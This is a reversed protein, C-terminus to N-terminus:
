WPLRRHLRLMSPRPTGPREDNQISAIADDITSRWNFSPRNRYWLRSSPRNTSIGFTSPRRNVLRARTADETGSRASNSRVTENMIDCRSNSDTRRSVGSQLTAAPLRSSRRSLINPSTESLATGSFLRTRRLLRGMNLIDVRLTFISAVTGFYTAGLGLVPGAEFAPPLELFRRRTSGFRMMASFLRFFFLFYCSPHIENHTQASGYQACHSTTLTYTYAHCDRLRHLYKSQHLFMLWHLYKM